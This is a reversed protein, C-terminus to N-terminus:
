VNPDQTSPVADNEETKEAVRQVPKERASRERQRKFEELDTILQRYPLIRVIEDLTTIGIHVRLLAEEVLSRHGTRRLMTRLQTRSAGATILDQIREDVILVEYIGIRGHYGTKDCQACGVGAVFQMGDLVDGFLESQHQTPITPQVCYPCVKRVLRQSVVALLASSIDYDPFGLSRLREVAGLSDSTHTTSLVLHGTSAAQLATTGTEEDRIEGILIVDPDHRLIARLLQSMNAVPGVQKQNIKELKYEIPDEVTIVKRTVDSVEQLASYMTTTKGCGTPGTVLIMGEPNRLLRLFTERSAPPMGLEEVSLLGQRPDLVRLVADEGDPGPVISM